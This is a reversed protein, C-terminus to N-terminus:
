LQFPKSKISKISNTNCQLNITILKIFKLFEFNLIGIMEAFADYYSSENTNFSGRHEFMCPNTITARLHIKNVARTPQYLLLSLLLDSMFHM